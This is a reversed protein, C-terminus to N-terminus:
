KRGSDLKKRIGQILLVPSAIVKGLRYIRSSVAKAYGRRYAKDMAKEVPFLLLSEDTLGRRKMAKICAYSHWVASKYSNDNLSISRPNNRQIYTIRDVYVLDGVEELQYFLDYDEANKMFPDIGETKKYASMKFALLQHIPWERMELASSGEGIRKGPSPKQITLNVDARYLGSYVLSAEPHKLHEQVMTELADEGLLVDDPDLFSCLEGEALEVCRRKTYGVGKNEGNRYIRIRVDDKLSDYVAESGDSSGDDVIVIEWNDYRQSRVSDIAEKLFCGNNYNAILVSILPTDKM